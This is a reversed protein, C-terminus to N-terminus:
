LVYKLKMEEIFVDLSESIENDVKFDHISQQIGNIYTCEIVVYEYISDELLYNLILRFTRDNIYIFEDSISPRYSASFYWKNFRM